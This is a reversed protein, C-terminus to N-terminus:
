LTSELPDNSLYYKSQGSSYIIYLNDHNLTQPTITINNFNIYPQVFDTVDNDNDDVIQLIDDKMISKHTIITKYLKSGITFTILYKNRDIKHVFQSNIYQLIKFKIIHYLLVCTDYLIGCCKKQHSYLSTYEMLDNYVHHVRKCRRRCFILGYYIFPYLFLFIFFILYYYMSIHTM